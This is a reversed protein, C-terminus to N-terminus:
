RRHERKGSTSGSCEGQSLEVPEAVTPEGISSGGSGAVEPTPAGEAVVTEGGGSEPVSASGSAGIPGDGEVTIAEPSEDASNGVDFGAMTQPGASGQVQARSRSSMVSQGGVRSASSSTAGGEQATVSGDAMATEPAANVSGQVDEVSAPSGGSRGDGGPAGKEGQGGVTVPPPDVAVVGGGGGSASPSPPPVSNIAGEVGPAASSRWWRGDHKGHGSDDRWCRWAHLQRRDWRCWGRGSRRWCGRWRCSIRGRRGCGSGSGGDCCRRDHRGCDRGVNCSCDSGLQGDAAIGAPHQWRAEAGALRAGYVRHRKGVIRFAISPWGYEFPLQSAEQVWTNSLTQGLGIIMYLVM